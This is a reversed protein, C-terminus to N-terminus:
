RYKERQTTFLEGHRYGLNPLVNDQLSVRSNLLDLPDHPVEAKRKMLSLLLGAGSVNGVFIFGMVRGARIVIKRYSEGGEKMFVDM